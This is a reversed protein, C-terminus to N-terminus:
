VGSKRQGTLGAVWLPAPDSARADKVSTDEDPPPGPRRDSGGCRPGADAFFLPVLVALLRQHRTRM